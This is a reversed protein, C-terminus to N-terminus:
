TETEFLKRWMEEVSELRLRAETAVFSLAEAGPDHRGNAQEIARVFWIAQRLPEEMDFLADRAEELPRAVDDGGRKRSKAM